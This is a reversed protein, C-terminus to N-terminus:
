VLFSLWCRALFLSLLIVSRLPAIQPSHKMSFGSLPTQGLQSSQYSLEDCTPIIAYFYM